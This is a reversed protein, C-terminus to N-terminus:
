IRMPMIVYRYDGQDDGDPRLLGAASEDRLDIAIKDSHVTAIFDSLYKSNFGISIEPGDFEIEFEEKAEGMEPNSSSILLLDPGFNLKIAKSTEHSLLAVRDIAMKFHSRQILATKDNDKPLVKQYNPFQGELTRSDLVRDGVRFFLHNETQTFFVSDLRDDILAKLEQVTKRPILIEQAEGDYGSFPHQVMSLRHADTTVMRITSNDFALQAGNLAYRTEEVTISYITQAIMTKLLGAPIEVRNEDVPKPVAPYDEKPAGALKYQIKGCSIGIFNNDRVELSVDAGDPLLRVIDALKKAPVTIAGGRGVQAKFHCSLGVELDTAYVAVGDGECELMANALIPRTNRKDVVGQVLSLERLLDEKKAVFQM